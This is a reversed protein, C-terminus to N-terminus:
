KVDPLIMHFTTGKGVVSEAYLHGDHNAIIRRCLSLGIGSGPYIERGHLRKFVEFIQEKFKEEFGIGNDSIFIDYYNTDPKPRLIYKKVEDFSLLKSGISIVPVKDPMTFKLANSIINYFLQNMQLGIAQIKPLEQVTIQAKRESLALEFDVLVEKVIINLDIRDLMETSKVLRSFELLDKILLSMRGSSQSIKNVIARNEQSLDEQKELMDSFVRIKRLPEQLDHSAVYAYQSLEENSNFLSRNSEELEENTSIVEENMAQLEENSAALEETRKQVLNTLEMELKREKTVDRVTGSIKYAEGKINFFCEGKAHLIAPLGTKLNKIEYEADYIGDTGPTVAHAISEKVVARYSEVIPTYAREVTIIEQKTFGFWERLRESYDLIQTQLDISWTALNAVDIAGRLSAEAEEIKKRSLVQQTVDTAVVLVGTVGTPEKRPQYVLDVYFTEMKNNRQLSVEVENAIYPVGTSIVGELLLDFGQGKLDPLAELLPKDIIEEKNKGVLAGYFPNALKFTLNEKAIIAIAVPAEEFSAMLEKQVEEKKQQALVRDTVDIAMDMVGYIEGAANRMAIYSFDFYYTGLVGDLELQAPASTAEYTKGTTYVDALLQLFPQGKLEPVADELPKGIITKDKGWIKIMSENAIEIRMEPGTFVCAAVSAQEIMNRFQFESNTLNEIARFEATTEIVISHIGGVKGNDLYIPAHTINFYCDEPHGNKDFTLKTNEFYITEGQMVQNLMPEVSDWRQSTAKVPKGMASPHRTTGFSPIFADNYLQIYENGWFICMAIPSDLMIRVMTKLSSPWSDPNGLPTTEWNIDRILQGCTGGKQLFHYKKNIQEKELKWFKCQLSLVNQIERLFHGNM